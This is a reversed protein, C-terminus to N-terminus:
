PGLLKQLTPKVFNVSQYSGIFYYIESLRVFLYKFILKVYIVHEILPLSPFLVCVIEAYM